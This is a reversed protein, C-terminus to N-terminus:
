SSKQKSRVLKQLMYLTENSLKSNLKYILSSFRLMEKGEKWIKYPITEKVLVGLECLEDLPGLIGLGLPHAVEKELESLSLPRRKEFFIRILPHYEERSRIKEKLIKIYQKAEEM